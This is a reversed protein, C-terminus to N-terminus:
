NIMIAVTSYLNDPQDFSENLNSEEIDVEVVVYGVRCLNRIVSKIRM